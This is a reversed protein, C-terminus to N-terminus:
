VQRAAVRRDDGPDLLLAARTLLISLEPINQAAIDMAVVLFLRAAGFATCAEAYHPAVAEPIVYPTIEPRSAWERAALRGITEADTAAKDLSGPSVCGSAVGACAGALVARRAIAFQSLQRM